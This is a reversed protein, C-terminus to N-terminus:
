MLLVDVGVSVNKFNLHHFKPSVLEFARLIIWLPYPLFANVVRQTRPYIAEGSQAYKPGPRRLDQVCTQSWVSAPMHQIPLYAWSWLQHGPVKKFLM